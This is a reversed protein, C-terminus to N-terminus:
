GPNRSAEFHEQASRTPAHAAFLVLSVALMGLVFIPRGSLFTGVFGMLLTSEALAWKVLVLAAFSSVKVLRGIVFSAAGNVLGAGVLVAPVLMDPAEPPNANQFSVLTGDRRATPARGVTLHLDSAGSNVTAQLLTVLVPDPDFM